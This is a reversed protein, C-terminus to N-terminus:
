LNSIYLLLLLCIKFINKTFPAFHVAFIICNKINAFSKVFFIIKALDSKVIIKFVASFSGIIANNVVENKTLLEGKKRVILVIYVAFSGDKGYVFFATMQDRSSERIEGM